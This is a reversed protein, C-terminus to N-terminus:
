KTVWRGNRKTYSVKVAAWGTKAARTESHHEAYASNFAARYISQAHEPLNDRVGNPLDSNRSYPMTCCGM